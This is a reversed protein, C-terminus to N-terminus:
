TTGNRTLSPTSSARTSRARKARYLEDDAMSVSEQVSRGLAASSGISVSVPEDGVAPQRAVTEVLRAAVAQHSSVGEGTIVIGFEDGGVRCATWAASVESRVATAVSKILRDGAPHGYRDNVIKLRDVDLLVVAVPDEPRRGADAIAEDWALRNGLGTLPDRRAVAHAADIADDLRLLRDIQRRRDAALVALLAVPLLTVVFVAPSAGLEAAALFGIPALAVDVAYSWRLMGVLEGFSLGLGVCNRLWSAALDGALQAAVIGALLLWGASGSRWGVAAVLIAPGVVHFASCLTVLPAERRGTQRRILLAGALLGAVVVPTVLAPPLVALLGVLVPLTPVASATGIEFEVTSAAAFASAGIAALAVERVDVTPRTTAAVAVTAVLLGVSTAVVTAIERRAQAGSSRSMGILALHWRELEELPHHSDPRPDDM